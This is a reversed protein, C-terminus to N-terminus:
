PDATEAPSAAPTARWVLWGGLVMVALGGGLLTLWKLPRIGETVLVSHRNPDAADYWCPQLSGVPYSRELRAQAEELTNYKPTDQETNETTRYRRGDIEVQHLVKLRYMRDARVVEASVIRCQGETYRWLTQLEWTLTQVSACAAILGCAVLLWGLWFWVRSLPKRETANETSAPGVSDTEARSEDVQKEPTEADGPEQM